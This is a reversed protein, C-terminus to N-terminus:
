FLQGRVGKMVNDLAKETQQKRRLDSIKALDQAIVRNAKEKVEKHGYDEVYEKLTILGNPLCYNQIDGTKAWQMFTQGTRGNGYCSTCQSPLFGSDLLESVVQELSREDSM